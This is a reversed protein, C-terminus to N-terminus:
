TKEGGGEGESAIVREEEKAGVSGMPGMGAPVSRGERREEVRTKEWWVEM